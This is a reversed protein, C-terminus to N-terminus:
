FHKSKNNIGNFQFAIRMFSCNKQQFNLLIYKATQTFQIQFFKQTSNLKKKYREIFPFSLNFLYFFKSSLLEM